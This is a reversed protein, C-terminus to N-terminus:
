LSVQLWIPFDWINQFIDVNEYIKGFTPVIKNSVRDRYEKM